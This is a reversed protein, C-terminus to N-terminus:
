VPPSPPPPPSDEPLDDPFDDEDPDEDPEGADPLEEAPLPDDEPPLEWPEEGPELPSLLPPEPPPDPPEPPAAHGRCRSCAARLLTNTLCQAIRRHPEASRGVHFRLEFTRAIRREAVPGRVQGRKACPRHLAIRAFKRLRQEFCGVQ